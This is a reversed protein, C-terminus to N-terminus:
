FDDIRTGGLQGIMTQPAFMKPSRLHAAVM